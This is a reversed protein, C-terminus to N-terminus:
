FRNFSYRPKDTPKHIVVKPQTPAVVPVAPPPSPGVTAATGQESETRQASLLSEVSKQTIGSGIEAWATAAANTKAQKKTLANGLFIKDESNPQRVTCRMTFNTKRLTFGKETRREELVEESICDFIPESMRKKKCFEYLKSIPNNQSPNEVKPTVDNQKLIQEETEGKKRKWSPGHQYGGRGWGQPGGWGQQYPRKNIKPLEDLKLVMVEAAKTKADKKNKGVGKATLEGMKLQYEYTKDHPPGIESVQEWEMHLSRLKSQDNCFMVPNRGKLIALISKEVIEGEEPKTPGISPAATAAAPIAPDKKIVPAAKIVAPSSTAPASAAPTGPEAKPAPAPAPPPPQHGGGRGGRFPMGGGRPHPPAYGGPHGYYNYNPMQTYGYSWQPFQWGSM